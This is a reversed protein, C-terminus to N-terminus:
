RAASARFRKRFSRHEELFQRGSASWRVRDDPPHVVLPRCTGPRKAAFSTARRAPLGPTGTSATSRRRHGEDGARNLRPSCASDFGRWGSRGTNPESPPSVPHPHVGPQHHVTRNPTPSRRDTPPPLGATPQPHSVQPRSPTPSRRDATEAPDSVRASRSLPSCIDIM